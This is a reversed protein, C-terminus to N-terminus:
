SHPIIKAGGVFLVHFFCLKKKLNMKRVDNAPYGQFVHKDDKFGLYYGLTFDFEAPIVDKAYQPMPLGTARVGPEFQYRKGPVLISAADKNALLQDVTLEEGPINKVQVM